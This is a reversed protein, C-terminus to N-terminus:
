AQFQAKQKHDRVIQVEGTNSKRNITKIRMFTRFRAYKMFLAKPYKDAFRLELVKAFNNIIWDEEKRIGGKHYKFFEEEFKKFDELM